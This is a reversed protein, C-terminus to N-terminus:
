MERGEKTKSKTTKISERQRKRAMIEVKEVSKDRERENRMRGFEERRGEASMTINSCVVKDRRFLHLWSHDRWNLLM